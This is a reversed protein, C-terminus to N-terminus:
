FAGIINKKEFFLNMYKEVSNDTRLLIDLQRTFGILRGIIRLRKEMDERGMKKTRAIVLDGKSEVVFDCKELISAILKARRSRRTIETVGGLFRFYIYNDNRNDSLYCDVMNFHYGLKLNLNLNGM